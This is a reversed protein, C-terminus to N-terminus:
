IQCDCDKISEPRLNKIWSSLWLLVYITHLFFLLNKKSMVEDGVKFEKSHDQEKEILDGFAAMADEKSVAKYNKSSHIAAKAEVSLEWFFFRFFFCVRITRIIAGEAM